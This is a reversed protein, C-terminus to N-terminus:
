NSNIEMMEIDVMTKILNQSTENRIKRYMEIKEAKPVPSKKVREIMDNYYGLEEFDNHFKSM